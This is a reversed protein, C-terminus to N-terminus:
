DGLDITLLPLVEGRVSRNRSKFVVQRTEPMLQLRLFISTSDLLIQKQAPNGNEDLFSTRVAFPPELYKQAVVESNENLIQYMLEGDERGQGFKASDRLLGPMIQKDLLKMRHEQITSDFVISATLVVIRDQAVVGAAFFVAALLALKANEFFTM